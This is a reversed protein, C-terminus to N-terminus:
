GEALAAAVMDVMSEVVAVVIGLLEGGAAVVSSAVVVNSVGGGGEGRREAWILVAVRGMWVVRLARMMARRGRARGGWAVVGAAYVAPREAKAVMKAAM